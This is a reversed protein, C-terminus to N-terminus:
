VSLSGIDNTMPGGRSPKRVRLQTQARRARPLGRAADSSRARSGSGQGVAKPYASTEVEDHWQEVLEEADNSVRKIPEPSLTSLDGYGM